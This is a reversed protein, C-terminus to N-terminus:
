LTAPLDPYRAEMIAGVREIEDDLVEMIERTSPFINTIHYFYRDVADM